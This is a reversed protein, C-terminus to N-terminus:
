PSNPGCTIPDPGIFNDAQLVVVDGATLVEHFGLSVAHDYAEQTTWNLTTTAPRPMSFDLVYFDQRHQSVGPVTVRNTHTLQAAVHDDAAVCTDAPLWAVVEGRDPHTPQSYYATLMHHLPFGFSAIPNGAAAVITGLIIVGATLKALAEQLAQVPPTRTRFIRAWGAFRSAWQPCLRQVGDVAAMCVIIWVPANYHFHPIWLSERTALMRAAMIPLGILAYPSRLALFGVPALLSFWVTIKIPPVFLAAITSGIMGLIGREPDLTPYDWYQFGDNAFHPILVRTVFAFVALGAIMLGGSVLWDKRTRDSPSGWILRVFGIVFVLAGMDERVLMLVACWILLPLDRRRDLSDLAWALIPIAFAIEHVDYDIMSQIPWNLMIGVVLVKAWTPNTFHRRLFSWLPFVAAAVVLAQGIVLVRINDWIWYLPAWLVIIPHFHDGWINYEDGKLTVIPAELRSYHRIAQDFIGLDYGGALNHNVRMVGHVAFLVVCVGFLVWPFRRDDFLRAARLPPL